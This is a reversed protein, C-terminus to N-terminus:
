FVSLTCLLITKLARGAVTVVGRRCLCRLLLGGLLWDDDHEIAWVVLQIRLIARYTDMFLVGIGLVVLAEDM